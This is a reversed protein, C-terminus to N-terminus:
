FQEKKWTIYKHIEAEFNTKPQWNLLSCTWSNNYIFSKSADDNIFEIKANTKKAIIEALEINAIENNDVSLLVKNKISDFKQIAYKIYQCADGVFIYNQKRTGNGWVQISKKSLAQNIYNPIITNEKMGIGYLSSLRFVVANNTKLVIEEALLKTKAYESQPNAASEESIIESSLSYISATSIYIIKSNPFKTTIEQTLNVNVSILEESSPSVSGSAVAAHCLIIFDPIVEIQNIKTSSFIKITDITEEKRGIGYIQYEEKLLNALNSALFGKIGSILISKKLNYNKM